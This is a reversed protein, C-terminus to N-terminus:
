KPGGRLARRVVFLHGGELGMPIDLRDAIQEMRFLAGAMLRSQFLGRPNIPVRKHFRRNQSFAVLLSASSWACLHLIFTAFGGIRETRVLQGGADAILRRIHKQKYGRYGHMPYLSYRSVVSPVTILLHGGPALRDMMGHVVDGDHRIDELAQLSMIFNFAGDIAGLQQADHQIFRVEQGSHDGTTREWSEQSSIDLGLYDGQVGAHVLFPYYGAGCGVDLVRAEHRPCYDAIAKTVALDTVFRTPSVTGM